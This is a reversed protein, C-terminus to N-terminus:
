LLDDMFVAERFELLDESAADLDGREEPITTPATALSDSTDSEFLGDNFDPWAVFDGLFETSGIGGGSVSAATLTNELPQLPTLAVFDGLFETSGIGGGSVSTGEASASSFGSRVPKSVSSM